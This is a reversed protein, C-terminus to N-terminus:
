LLSAERVTLGGLTWLMYFYHYGHPCSYSVMPMCNAVGCQVEGVGM